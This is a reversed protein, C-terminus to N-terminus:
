TMSKQFKGIDELSLAEYSVKYGPYSLILAKAKLKLEETNIKNKNTKIEAIVMEKKMDNIAVLDIEDTHDKKWYSGVKNYLGTESFITRYFKELIEGRYTSLDRRVVDKIYDTNGMEVASRNRYIFRFWFNLFNDSIRYKQSRSNPKANIPKYKEIVAYDKELRDLHGGVDSGLFSQIESRGTKGVSILELISFYTGYEKGFDEILINKGEAMFPSDQRIVVDLIDEFTFAGAEILLDIYKPSGGTILYYNLLASTDEIKQDSLIKAITSVSFPRLTFIRDARNFLPERAGEFIKHMLSYVSGIFILNLRSNQKGIDWLHQIESYISPAVNYFEQFEDIIVTVPDTKSIELLFAFVDRFERIEGIVPANPFTKKIQAIYEECLLAESRKSVFFYLHKRDKVFELSLLTKGIRRRGTIVAMHGGTKSDAMLSSLDKLETKRNYFKM